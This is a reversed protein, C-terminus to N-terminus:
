HADQRASSLAEAEAGMDQKQFVERSQFHLLRLWRYKPLSRLVVRCSLTLAPLLTVKYLLASLIVICLKKCHM